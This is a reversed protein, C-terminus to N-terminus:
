AEVERGWAMFEFTLPTAAQRVAEIAEAKKGHDALTLAKAVSKHFDAHLAMVKAYHPSRKLTPNSEEHLWKGFPCLNDKGARAAAFEALDGSEFAAILKAKFMGHAGTANKLIEKIDTNTM